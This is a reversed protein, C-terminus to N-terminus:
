AGPRPGHLTDGHGDVRHVSVESGPRLDPAPARVAGWEPVTLEAGAKEKAIRAAGEASRAEYFRASDGAPRVIIEYVAM